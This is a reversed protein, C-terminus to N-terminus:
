MDDILLVNKGEVTGILETVETVSASLRRKNVIALDTGLRKAYGRAMKASGVDPAVVILDPIRLSKFHEALVPAAYLHDVPIDFFGQIQAAHLDVTIVRNVGATVLLNAVLKATIPVRREHRRGGGRRVGEGRAARARRPLGERARARAGGGGDRGRPRRAGGARGRQRRHRRGGRRLRPRRARDGLRHARALRGADPAEVRRRLERH